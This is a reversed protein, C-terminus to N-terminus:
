ITLTIRGIKWIFCNNWAFDTPTLSNCLLNLLKIFKVNKNKNRYYVIVKLPLPRGFHVSQPLAFLQYICFNIYEQTKQTPRGKNELIHQPGRPEKSKGSSTRTTGSPQSVRCQTLEWTWCGRSSRRKTNMRLHTHSLDMCQLFVIDFTLYSRLYLALFCRLLSLQIGREIFLAYKSLLPMVVDFSACTQWDHKSYNNPLCVMNERGFCLM